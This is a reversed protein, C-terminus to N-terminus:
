HQCFPFIFINDHSFKMVNIFPINRTFRAINNKTEWGANLLTPLPFRTKLYETRSAGSLKRSMVRQTASSLSGRQRKVITLFHFFLINKDPWLLSKKIKFHTYIHVPYCCRTVYSRQVRPLHHRRAPQQLRAARHAHRARPARAGAAQAQLPVLGLQAGCQPVLREQGRYQGVGRAQGSRSRKTYLMPLLM